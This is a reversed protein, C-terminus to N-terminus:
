RCTSRCWRSGRRRSCSRASACPRSLRRARALRASAPTACARSWAASARSSTWTRERVGPQRHSLHSLHHQHVSHRVPLPQQLGVVQWLFCRAARRRLAQGGRRRVGAGAGARGLGGDRADARRGARRRLQAAGRHRRRDQGGRTKFLEACIKAHERTEIAGCPTADEPTIVYDYGNTELIELLKARVGVALDSNFFGRTGVILAFCTKKEITRM